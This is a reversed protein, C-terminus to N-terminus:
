ISKACRGRESGGFHESESQRGQGSADGHYNRKGRGCPGTCYEHACIVSLGGERGACVSRVQCASDGETWAFHRERTDFWSNQKQKQHFDRINVIANKIVDLLKPEVKEYAEEIEAETVLVTDATLKTGDFKETYEFM